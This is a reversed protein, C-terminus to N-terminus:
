ASAPTRLNSDVIVRMTQREYEVGNPKRATLSPDDALMTGTGTVIASSQARFLHVDARSAQGTIWRSEGSKMAIRGDLSAAMKLTVRPRGTMCRHIFGRNLEAADDELLGYEVDIGAKKLAKIGGGAVKKNPDKMAVIVRAVRADILADVCPPTRGHHCCPELTVFVTADRTSAGAAALAMIEAHAEGAKAHWGEGLIEGNWAVVCGVRPNPDCSYLGKRALELARRMMKQDSASSM